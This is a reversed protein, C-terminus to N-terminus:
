CLTSGNGINLIGECAAIFICSSDNLCQTVTNDIKPRPDFIVTVQQSVKEFSFSPTPSCTKTFNAVVDFIVPPQFMDHPCLNTQPYSYTHTFSIITDTPTITKSTGDGFSICVKDVLISTTYNFTITRHISDASACITTSGIASQKPKIAGCDSGNASPPCQAKTEHWQFLFVVGILILLLWNKSTTNLTM